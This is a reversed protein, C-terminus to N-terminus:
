SHHQLLKWALILWGVVQPVAFLLALINRIRNQSVLSQPANWYRIAVYIALPASILTFPWILLPLVSLTLAISGYLMRENELNRLRGKNRATQICNPCLHQGNLEVDCLACLFRGCSECPVAAKKQPHYFCSAEESSALPEAAKGVTEAQFFSPYIEVQTLVGCAPCPAMEGITVSFGSETARQLLPSKCHVCTPSVSM